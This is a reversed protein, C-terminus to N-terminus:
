LFFFFANVLIVFKSKTAEAELLSMEAPWIETFQESKNRAENLLSYYYYFYFVRKKSIGEMHLHLLGAAIGRCWTWIMSEEIPLTSHLVAYLSGGELYEEGSLFLSKFKFLFILILQFNNGTVICLPNSCLGFFQVVNAHPSNNSSYTM